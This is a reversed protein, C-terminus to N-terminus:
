RANNFSQKDDNAQAAFKILKLTHIELGMPLWTTPNRPVRCYLIHIGAVTQKGASKDNSLISLM